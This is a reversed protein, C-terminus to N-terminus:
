QANRSRRVKDNLDYTGSIIAGNAALEKKDKSRVWVFPDSTGGGSGDWKAAFTSWVSAFGGSGILKVGFEFSDMELIVARIRQFDTTRFSATFQGGLRISGSSTGAGTTTGSAVPNWSSGTRQELLWTPAPVATNYNGKVSNWMAQAALNPEVVALGNRDFLYYGDPSVISASAEAYARFKHVLSSVSINLVMRYVATLPQPM